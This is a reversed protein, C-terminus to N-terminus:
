RVAEKIPIVLENWLEEAYDDWSRSPRARAESRLAARREDEVLLTRMARALALDDRPDVLLCGGDAAIEATSGFDSTIVPVGFALSEAVPLGFGEHLSPFVTFSAERYSDVLVRDDVNRLVEFLRGARRLAAIQRDFPATFQASGGGIFRLRFRHGERWLTEAAFLVAGHNKRPEESGVCLILPVDDDSKREDVRRGEVMPKDVPLPVATVEPGVLGQSVLSDVFGAFEGAASASVGSLREAHKVVSLFDVFRDSETLSVMDGSVVPIMDHVVFGVRNGSFQALGRLPGCQSQQPVEIHILACDVPVLVDGPADRHEAPASDIEGHWHFLTAEEDPSLSRLSSDRDSWVAFECDHNDRWRRATHRVVRQVGTNHRTRASFNVDVLVTNRVVKLHSGLSNNRIAAERSAALVVYHLEGEDVLELRRRLRQFEDPLPYSGAVAVFLLWVAADEPKAKVKSSLLMLLPAPGRAHAAELEEASIGLQQGAAELRQMLAEVLSDAAELRVTDDVRTM